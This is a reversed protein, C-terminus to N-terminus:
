GSTIKKSNKLIKESLTFHNKIDEITRRKFNDKKFNKIVINFMNLFHNDNFRYLKYKSRKFIEFFIKENKNKSFFKNIYFTEKNTIVEISNEYKQNEGWKYIRLSNKDKIIINGILSVGKQVLSSEIKFKLRKKLLFTELSIPYVATDWFFGGNKNKYRFNSKNLSPIKLSAYIYRIKRNKLCRKLLKFVEHYKYMFCEFILLNKIKALQIIKKLKKHNTSFPKECMVNFNNQLCKLIYHEHMGTDCSIYVIDLNKSFFDKDNKKKYISLINIDKINKLEPRINKKFHRGEGIIGFNIKKM